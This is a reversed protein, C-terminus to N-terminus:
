VVELYAYCQTAKNSWLYMSNLSEQLESSNSQQICATDIWLYKLGDEKAQLCANIVKNYALKSKATGARIDDFLVEDSAQGWTHSVIAHPPPNHSPFEVLRIPDLETTEILYM